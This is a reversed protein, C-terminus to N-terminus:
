RRTERGTQGLQISLWRALQDRLRADLLHVDRAMDTRLQADTTGDRRWYRGGGHGDAMLMRHVAVVDVLPLDLVHNRLEARIQAWLSPVERGDPGRRFSGAPVLESGPPLRPPPPAGGSGGVAAAPAAVAPPAAPAAAPEEAMAYRGTRRISPLVETELWDQFVVAQPRRSLMLARYVGRETLCLLSRIMSANIKRDEIQPGCDRLASGDIVTTHESRMRGAKQWRRVANSLKKPQYGLAAEVQVVPFVPEGEVMLATITAESFRYASQVTIDTSNVSM